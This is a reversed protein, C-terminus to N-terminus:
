PISRFSQRQKKKVVPSATEMGAEEKSPIHTRKDKHKYSKTSM